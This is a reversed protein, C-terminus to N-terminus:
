NKRKLYLRQYEQHDDTVYGRHVYGLSEIVLRNSTVVLYSCRNCKYAVQELHSDDEILIPHECLIEEVTTM